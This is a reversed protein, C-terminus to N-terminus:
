EKEETWCNGSLHGEDLLVSPSTMHGAMFLLLLLLYPHRLLLVRCTSSWEWTHSWGDSQPSSSRVDLPTKEEDGRRNDDERGYNADGGIPGIGRRHMDQHRHLGCCIHRRSIFAPNRPLVGHRGRNAAGTPIAVAPAFWHNWTTQNIVILWGPRDRSSSWPM